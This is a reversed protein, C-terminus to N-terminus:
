VENKLHKVLTRTAGEGLGLEKSLRIRGASEGSGIIELAKIVHAETFSPERGLAVKSTVREIVKSLEL